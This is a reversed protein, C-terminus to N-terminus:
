CSQISSSQYLPPKYLLYHQQHIKFNLGTDVRIPSSEALRKLRDRRICFFLAELQTCAPPPILCMKVSPTNMIGPLAQTSSAEAMIEEIPKVQLM